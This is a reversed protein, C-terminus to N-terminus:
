FNEGGEEEEIPNNKQNRKIHEYHAEAVIDELGEKVNYAKERSKDALNLAQSTALVALRRGPKKLGKLVYYASIGAVIGFPDM